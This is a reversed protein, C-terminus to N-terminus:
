QSLTGLCCERHRGHCCNKSWPVVKSIIASHVVHQVMKLHVAIAKSAWTPDGPLGSFRPLVESTLPPLRPRALRGRPLWWLQTPKAFPWFFGPQLTLSAPTLTWLRPGTALVAGLTGAKPAPATAPVVGLPTLSLTNFIDDNISTLSSLSSNGGFGAIDPLSSGVADWSAANCLFTKMSFLAGYVSKETQVGKSRLIDRTWIYFKCVGLLRTRGASPSALVLCKQLRSSLNTQTWSRPVSTSCRSLQMERPMSGGPPSVQWETAM